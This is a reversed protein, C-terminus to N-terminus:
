VSKTIKSISSFFFGFFYILVLLNVSLIRPDEKPFCQNSIFYSIFSFFASSKFHGIFLNFWAMITSIHFSNDIWFPIKKNSSTKENENNECKKSFYWLLLFSLGFSLTWFIQKHYKSTTTEAFLTFFILLAFSFYIHIFQGTNMINDGTNCMKLSGWVSYTFAFLVLIAMNITLGILKVLNLNTYRSAIIIASIFTLIALYGVVLPNEYSLGFIKEFTVLSINYIIILVFFLIFTVIKDEWQGKSHKSAEWVIIIFVFTSFINKLADNLVRSYLVYVFSIGLLVKAIQKSYKKDLHFM